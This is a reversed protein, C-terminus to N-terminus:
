HHSPAPAPQRIALLIWGTGLGVGLATLGWGTGALRLGLAADLAYAGPGTFAFTASAVGLTLPFEYGDKYNWLSRTHGAVAINLAMGVLAAAALPTLLGLSLLLGAGLDTVGALLAMLTGAPYGRSTFYDRYGAMGLGGFWGLLKQTGHAAMLLGLFVRLLLLGLDLGNDM